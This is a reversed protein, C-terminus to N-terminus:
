TKREKEGNQNINLKKQPELQINVDTVSKAAWGHAITNDCPEFTRSNSGLTITSFTESSTVPVSPRYSQFQNPRASPVVQCQDFKQCAWNM